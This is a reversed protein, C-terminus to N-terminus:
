TACRGQDARWRPSGQRHWLSHRKTYRDRARLAPQLWYPWRGTSRTVSRSTLSFAAFLSGVVLLLVLPVFVNSATRSDSPRHSGSKPKVSWRSSGRLTSETSRRTVEVEILTEGNITCRVKSAADVADPKSRALEADPVPQKDVRSARVTAGPQYKLAVVVFGDAPLRDNPRVIVVDGPVLLEVPMEAANGNARRGIATAPALKPCHRLRKRPGCM